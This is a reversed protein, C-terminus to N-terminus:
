VEGQANIGEYLLRVGAGWTCIPEPPLWSPKKDHQMYALSESEIGNAWEALYWGMTFVKCIGAGEGVGAYFINGSRGFVPKSNMTLHIMGGWVYEFNVHTHKPFRNNFAKRLLPQSRRIQEPSCTYYTGYFLGNRVFLRNDKTLRVTTGASNAATVGWPHIDKFTEMEEPTLRRSLAGYSIIPCFRHDSLGLEQLFPGATVIVAQARIKRGNLLTVEAHDPKDNLQMVPCKEFVHVDSDLTTFLGRLVDAPNVLVSGPNFIARTYYSTGLRRSLEEAGVDEYKMNMRELIKIDKDLIKWFRKEYAALYKGDESWDVDLKHAKIERRMTDIAHVNLKVTWKEDEPTSIDDGFKHPVDILFGANKGSDNAGIRIAEFVAIKKGPFLEKLRLAAGYGGYGAGVVVYDYADLIEEEHKFQHNKFSSTELWGSVGLEAPYINVEKM